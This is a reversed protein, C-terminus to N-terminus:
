ARSIPHNDRVLAQIATGIAGRNKLLFNVGSAPDIANIHMHIEPAAPAGGGGGPSRFDVPIAGHQLPIVAEPQWAEALAVLSPRTFVGGTQAGVVPGAEGPALGAWLGGGGGGGAAAAGGGGFWGLVSQMLQQAAMRAISSIFANEISQFFGILTDQLSAGGKITDEFFRQFSQEWEGASGKLINGITFASDAIAKQVQEIETDLQTLAPLATEGMALYELRIAQLAALLQKYGSITQKTGEIEQSMQQTTLDAIQRKIALQDEESQTGQPILNLYEIQDAITAQGTTREWEFRALGLAQAKKTAEETMAAQQREWETAAAQWTRFDEVQQEAMQRFEDARKRDIAAIAADAAEQIAVKTDAYRKEAKGTADLAKQEEAQWKQVEAIEREWPNLMLEANKAAVETLIRTYDTTLEIRYDAVSKEMERVKDNIDKESILHAARKASLTQYYQATKAEVETLGANQRIMEAIADEQAQIEESATERNLDRMREKLDAILGQDKAYQVSLSQLRAMQAAATPLTDKAWKDYADLVKKMAKSHQDAAKAARGHAGAADAAGAARPTTPVLAGGGRVSATTAGMKAIRAQETRLAAETAKEQAEMARQDAPTPIGGLIGRWDFINTAARQGTPRWKSMALSAREWQIRITIVLNAVWKLFNAWNSTARNIDNINGFIGGLLSGVLGATQKVVEWSAQLGNILTLAERTLGNEDRLYGNIAKVLNTIDGYASNVQDAAFAQRMMQTAITSMTSRQTTLLNSVVKQSAVFGSLRKAIEEMLVGQQKWRPIDEKLNVGQQVLIRALQSGAVLRGEMLARIEQSQQIEFNQGATIAKIAEAIAVFNDQQKATSLDIQGAYTVWSRLMLQLEQGTGTFKVDMAEVAAMLKLSAQYAKEFNEAPNFSVFTAAMTAASRRMNEQSEIGMKVAGVYGKVAAGATIAAGTILGFGAAFKGLGAAWSTGAQAAIRGTGVEWTKAQQGAKQLAQEAPRGDLEIKGKVSGVDFAM